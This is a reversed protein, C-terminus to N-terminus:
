RDGGGRSGGGAAGGGGAGNSVEVIYEGAPLVTPLQFHAQFSSLNQYHTEIVLSSAADSTVPTLRLTTKLLPPAPAGIKLTTPCSM